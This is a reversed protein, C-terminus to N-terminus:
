IGSALRAAARELGEPWNPETLGFAARAKSTDLVSNAPRPAPTPYDATTIAHVARTAIAGRKRAETVIAEAFRHWTVAPRGAWHYTGPDCAGAELSGAMRLLDSALADAPTPCGLQDDVVRIEEREHILRWITRLFNNGWASFVWATRVILHGDPLTSRVSEEGALKSRGYVGVPNPADREDYATSKTGDFVYDTSLHLLQVGARECGASVVAAGDRNVAFAKAAESEARDVATYAAANIVVTPRHRDLAAAVSRPDTVDLDERTTAVAERGARAAAQLLARGVQGGAGLILLRGVAV